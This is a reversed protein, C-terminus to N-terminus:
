DGRVSDRLSEDVRTINDLFHSDDIDGLDVVFSSCLV